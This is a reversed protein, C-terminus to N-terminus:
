CKPLLLRNEVIWAVHSRFLDAGVSSRGEEVSSYLTVVPFLVAAVALTSALSRSLASVSSADCLTDILLCRFAARM